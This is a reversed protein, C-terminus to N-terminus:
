YLHWYLHNLPSHFVIDAFEKLFSENRRIECNKVNYMPTGVDYFLVVTSYIQLTHM